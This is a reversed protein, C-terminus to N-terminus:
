WFKDKKWFGVYDHKQLDKALFDAKITEERNTCARLAYKFRARTTKMTDYSYGHRPTGQNRWMIYADRANNHHEAVYENCGTIERHKHVALELLALALIMYSTLSVKTLVSCLMLIVRIRVISIPVIVLLNVCISKLCFIIVSIVTIVKKNM